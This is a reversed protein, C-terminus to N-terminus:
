APPEKLLDVSKTYDEIAKEFDELRAYVLARNFYFYGYDPRM